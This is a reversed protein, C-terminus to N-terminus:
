VGTRVPIRDTIKQYGFAAYLSNFRNNWPPRVRDLDVSGTLPYEGTKHIHMDM